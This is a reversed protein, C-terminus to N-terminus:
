FNSTKALVQKFISKYEDLVEKSIKGQAIAQKLRELNARLARKIDDSLCMGAHKNNLVNKAIFEAYKRLTDAFTKDVVIPAALIFKM